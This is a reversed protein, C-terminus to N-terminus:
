YTDDTYFIFKVKMDGNHLFSIMWSKYSIDTLRMLLQFTNVFPENLHNRM